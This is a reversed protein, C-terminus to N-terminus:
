PVYIGLATSATCLVADTGNGRKIMGSATGATCYYLQTGAATGLRIAGATHSNITTTLGDIRMDVYADNADNVTAIDANGTYGIHVNKNTGVMVQLRSIPTPCGVCAYGNSLLSLNNVPTGNVRTRLRIATNTAADYMNDLLLDANSGDGNYSIRGNYSVNTGLQIAGNNANAGTLPAWGSFTAQTSNSVMSFSGNALITGRVAGNNYFYTTAGSALYMVKGATDGVIGNLGTGEVGLVSKGNFSLESYGAVSYPGIRMAGLGLLASSNTLYVSTGLDTWGNPYRVSTIAARVSAGPLLLALILLARM